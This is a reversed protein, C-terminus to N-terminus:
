PGAFAPLHYEVLGREICLRASLDAIFTPHSSHGISSEDSFDEGRMLLGTVEEYVIDFDYIMPKLSPIRQAEFDIVRTTGVNAAIVGSGVQQVFRQALHKAVM